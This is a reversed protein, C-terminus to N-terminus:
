SCRLHTDSARDQEPADLNDTVMTSPFHFLFRLRLLALLLTQRLDQLLSTVFGPLRQTRSVVEPYCQFAEYVWQSIICFQALSHSFM